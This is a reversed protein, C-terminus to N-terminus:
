LLETSFVKYNEIQPAKELSDEGKRYIACIIQFSSRGLRNTRTAVEVTCPYHLQQIFSCQIDALIVNENVELPTQTVEEVYAVRGSELYRMYQVNNVHGFADMDGWRVPLELFHTFDSRQMPTLSRLALATAACAVLILVTKPYVVVQYVTFPKALSPTAAM